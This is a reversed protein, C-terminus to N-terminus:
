APPKGVVSRYLDDASAQALPQIAAIHDDPRVLVLTDDACGM